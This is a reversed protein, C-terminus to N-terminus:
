VYFTLNVSLVFIIGVAKVVGFSVCIILVRNCMM